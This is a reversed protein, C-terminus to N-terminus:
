HRPPPAVTESFLAGIFTRELMEDEVLERAKSGNILTQLLLGSLEGDQQSESTEAEAPDGLVFGIGAEFAQEVLRRLPAGGYAKALRLREEASLMRRTEGEVKEIAVVHGSETDVTFAYLGPAARRAAAAYSKRRVPAPKPAQSAPRPNPPM